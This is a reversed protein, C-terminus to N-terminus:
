QKPNIATKNAQLTVEAATALATSKCNARRHQCPKRAHCPPMGSQHPQPSQCTGTVASAMALTEFIIPAVIAKM